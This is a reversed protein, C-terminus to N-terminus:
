NENRRVVTQGTAVQKAIGSVEVEVMLLSADNNWTITPQTKFCQSGLAAFSFKLNQIRKTTLPETVTKNEVGDCYETVAAIGTTTPNSFVAYINQLKLQTKLSGSIFARLDVSATADETGAFLKYLKTDTIAYLFPETGQNALAFLKFQEGLEYDDFCVWSRRINDYVAIVNGQDTVVAFFSFDDFVIAATTSQKLTLSNKIRASFVSNRGENNLQSVANFSRIGDFDIFAYDQNTDIFSFQNVIGASFPKRNLFTPEAFITKEYNFELPYCTKATAVLLEGSSLAGIYNVEDYSVTYSTTNAKGGKNGTTTVNVVFDLPRGSVSRYLTRGDPAMGFLIGNIFCMQKMIPVYERNSTTWQEYTGLLRASADAKILWPQNVGDQVVVGALTGNVVINQVDVSSETATGDVNGDSKLKRSYNFTSAPVVCIYIYDVTPSMAFESIQAWASDTIIDKYYALGACFLLLYNDFAYCGQKKGAPATIDELPLKITKLATTRNRINFGLGYENEGLAIDEDFLNTGGTFSAQIM